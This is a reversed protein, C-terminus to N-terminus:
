TGGRARASPHLGPAYGARIAATTVPPTLVALTGTPLPRRDTYGGPTWRLLAGASVLWAGDPEAVFVGDPLGAAEQSHTPPPGARRLRRQGHLVADMADAGPVSTVAEGLAALGEAWCRRFRQYAANRCTSCPRHGAALATAEDLFFLHTYRRPTMVPRYWGRFALECIIWRRVQFTRVIVGREDHLVGRNGTLTGRDAVALLDGAPTVRNQFTV